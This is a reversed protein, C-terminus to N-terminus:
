LVFKNERRQMCVCVFGRFFDYNQFLLKVDCSPKFVADAYLPIGNPRCAYICSITLLPTIPVSPMIKLISQNLNILQILMRCICVPFNNETPIFEYSSHNFLSAACIGYCVLDVPLPKQDQYFLAKLCLDRQLHLM